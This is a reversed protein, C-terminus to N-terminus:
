TQLNLLGVASGPFKFLRSYDFFTRHYRIFFMKPIIRRKSFKVFKFYSLCFIIINVVSVSQTEAKRSFHPILTLKRASLPFYADRTGGGGGEVAINMM